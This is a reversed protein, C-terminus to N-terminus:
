AVPTSGVHIALFNDGDSITVLDNLSEYKRGDSTNELFYSGIDSIDIAAGAGANRLITEVSIPNEVTASEEGNVKYCVSKEVPKHDPDRKKTTFHTTGPAIDILEDPDGYESGDSSVLLAEESSFGALDLLTSVKVPSKDLPYAKDDIYCVWDSTM